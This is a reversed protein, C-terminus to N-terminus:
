KWAFVPQELEDVPDARGELALWRLQLLVPARDTRPDSRQGVSDAGGPAPEGSDHHVAAFGRAATSATGGRYAAVVEDARPRPRLDLRGGGRDGGPTIVYGSRTPRDDLLGLVASDPLNVGVEEDSNACRRREIATEGPILAPRRTAGM